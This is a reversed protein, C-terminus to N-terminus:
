CLHLTAAAQLCLFVGPMGQCSSHSCLSSLHNYQDACICLKPSHERPPGTRKRLLLLSKALRARALYGLLALAISCGAMALMGYLLSKRLRPHSNITLMCEPMQGAISVLTYGLDCHCGQLLPLPSSCMSLHLSPRLKEPAYLLGKASISALM